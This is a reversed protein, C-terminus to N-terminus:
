YEEKNKKVYSIMDTLLCDTTYTEPCIHIPISVKEATLKTQPGICAFFSNKTWERWKTNEVLKFFQSVTSPSTFTIFDIQQGQLLQLLREKESNNEVTEYVVLDTVPAGLRTIEDVLFSRALNGRALLFQTGTNIVPKLSELLGEAVFEDPVIDPYFGKEILAKETKTGVVAIKPFSENKNSKLEYYFEFFYDVGNKSTFILWDYIHLNKITERIELQQKPKQFSLLPIEIPTGGAAVIKRSFEAAQNKGRTVLVTRGSLPLESDM